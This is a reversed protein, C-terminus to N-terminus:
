ATLNRRMAAMDFVDIMGDKTLDAEFGITVEHGSIYSYMLVADAIDISNDSNLDGYAINEDLSAFTLNQEIAYKHAETNYYGKIVCEEKAILIRNNTLPDGFKDDIYFNFKLLGITQLKQVFNLEKVATDMFANQGITLLNDPLTVKKLSELGCFAEPFIKEAGIINIIELNQCSNVACEYIDKVNIDIRKLKPCSSIAYNTLTLEPSDIKVEELYDMSSIGRLYKINEPVILKTVGTFRLADNMGSVTYGDLETPLAVPTEIPVADSHKPLTCDTIVTTGNPAVFYVWIDSIFKELSYDNPYDSKLMTEHYVFTKGDASSITNKAIDKDKPMSEYFKIYEFEDSFSSLIIRETGEDNLWYEFYDDYFNSYIIDPIIYETDNFCSYYDPIPNVVSAISQPNEFSIRNHHTKNTLENRANACYVNPYYTRETVFARQCLLKEDESLADYDNVNLSYKIYRNFLNWDIDSKNESILYQQSIYNNIGNDASVVPIKMFSTTAAAVSLFFAIMKSKM